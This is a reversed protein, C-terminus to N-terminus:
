RSLVVVGRARLLVCPYHNRLQANVSPNVGHEALIAVSSNSRAPDYGVANGRLPPYVYYRVVEVAYPPAVGVTEDPGLSAQAVRAAERWDVDHTKLSYSHIHGLALIVVAVTAAARGVNNGLELIGLAILIFFAPFSYIAYREMFMPRWMFSGAVLM